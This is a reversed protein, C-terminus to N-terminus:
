SEPPPRRDGVLKQMRDLPLAHAVRGNRGTMTEAACLANLIAEETAEAAGHFLPDMQKNPMMEIAHASRSGSRIHNGTAFALFIDGSSNHGYGGVRGLGVTARKALRHCQVPLLPADTAVIVIISGGTPPDPWPSPVEDHDILRGVPVGDVRLDRRAGYNAQVLVGVTHVGTGTEALRSATGIGGKFEHCIMGTGGGVCGEAVPGSAAARLAARADDEGVPFSEITNLWGDWTEAVVPLHFADAVGADVADKVLLDRVLGVQHTNTIGIPSGLLGSEEIWPLGTMEGNGSFNHWAAFAHDTWIEGARPVVMTVGSRVVVPVDRVITAHGVLVDPVDTIANEPGPPLDGIVIGLDRLRPRM